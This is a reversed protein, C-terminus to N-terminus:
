GPWIRGKVSIELLEIKDSLEKIKKSQREIIACLKCVECKCPTATRTM